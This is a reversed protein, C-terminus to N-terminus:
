YKTIDDEGQELTCLKHELHFIPPGNSPSFHECMAACVDTIFETTLVTPVLDHHISNLVWSLIMNNVHVWPAYPADISEPKPIDGMVFGIKNKTSLAITMAQSWSDYNDGTLVM